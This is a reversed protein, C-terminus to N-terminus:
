NDDSPLELAPFSDHPIVDLVHGSIDLSCAVPDGISCNEQVRLFVPEGDLFMTRTEWDGWQNKILFVAPFYKQGNKKSTICKAGLFFTATM